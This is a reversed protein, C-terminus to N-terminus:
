PLVLAAVPCCGGQLYIHLRLLRVVCACRSNGHVRLAAEDPRCCGGVKVIGTYACMSWHCLLVLEGHLDVESRYASLLQAQSCMSFLPLSPLCSPVPLAAFAFNPFTICGHTNPAAAPCRQHM